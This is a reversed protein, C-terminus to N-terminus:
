QTCRCILKRIYNKSRYIINTVLVVGYKKERLARVVLDEATSENISTCMSAKQAFSLAPVDKELIYYKCAIAMRNAKELLVPHGQIGM